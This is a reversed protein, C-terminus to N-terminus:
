AGSLDPSRLRPVFPAVVFTRLLYGPLSAEVLRPDLRDAILAHAAPWESWHLSRDVHHVTHYGHNFHLWNNLRGVFDRSHAWDSNPDAQHHQPYGTAIMAIVGFAQPVVVLWWARQPDAWWCLGVFGVAMGVQLLCAVGHRPRRWLARGLYHLAAGVYGVLGIVTYVLWHGLHM